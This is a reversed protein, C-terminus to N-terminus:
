FCANILCVRCNDAQEVVFIRCQGYDMCLMHLRPACPHAVFAPPTDIVNNHDIDSQPPSMWRQLYSVGASEWREQRVQSSRFPFLLCSPRHDATRGECGARHSVWDTVLETPRLPVGLFNTYDFLRQFMSGKVSSDCYHAINQINTRIPIRETPIRETPIENPRSKTRMPRFWM